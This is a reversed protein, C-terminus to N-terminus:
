DFLCTDGRAYIEVERPEKSQAFGYSRPPELQNTPQHGVECLQFQLPVVIHAIGAPFGQTICLLRRTALDLDCESVLLAAPSSLCFRMFGLRKQPQSTTCTDQHPTHEHIRTLHKSHIVSPCLSHRTPTPCPVSRGPSCWPHTSLLLCRAQWTAHPCRSSCRLAAPQQCGPMPKNACMGALPLYPLASAYGIGHTHYVCTSNIFKIIVCM